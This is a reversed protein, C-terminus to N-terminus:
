IHMVTSNKDTVVSIPYSLPVPLIKCKELFLSKYSCNNCVQQRFSLSLRYLKFIQEM